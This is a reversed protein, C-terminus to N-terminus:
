IPKENTKRTKKAREDRKRKEDSHGISQLRHENLINISTNTHTNKKQEKYVNCESTKLQESTLILKRM